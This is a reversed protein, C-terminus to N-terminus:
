KSVLGFSMSKNLSIILRRAPLSSNDTRLIELGIYHTIVHSLYDWVRSLNILKKIAKELGAGSKNGPGFRIIFSMTFATAHLEGVVWRTM